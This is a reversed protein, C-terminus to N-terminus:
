LSAAIEQIRQAIADFSLNERFQKITDNQNKKIDMDKTQMLASLLKKENGAEYLLGCKGNGTIAQFSFINTVIPICGCSMAECVATGSGEYHSGSIIFDASNYWYLMEEHPVKGILIVSNNMAPGLIDVIEPLLESTHYIMYLRAAPQSKLFQLFTKIVTLPDKNKDLRGVWLFCPSGEANTKSQALKREVPYFLSSVEMVEHIKKSSGLNGKNVWDEGMARSAFFYADVYYDAVRQLYKKIGTFPKEAHNQAILKAKKGLKIHLQILQLPYHLGHVVVVDPKLSKVFRHLRWPFYLKKKGYNVFHYQINNHEWSGEFNIQEVRIVTHQKALKELSTVYIKIRDIWREPSSIDPSYNYSVFVFKM